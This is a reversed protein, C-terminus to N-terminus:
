VTYLTIGNYNHKFHLKDTSITEREVMLSCDTRSFECSDDCEHVFSVEAAVAISPVLKFTSSLNYLPCDLNNLVGAMSEMRKVVCTCKSLSRFWTVFM